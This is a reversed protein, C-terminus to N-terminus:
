CHLNKNKSSKKYVKLVLLADLQIAQLKKMYIMLLYCYPKEDFKSFRVRAVM